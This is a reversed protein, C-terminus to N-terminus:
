GFLKNHKKLGAYYQVEKNFGTILAHTDPEEVEDVDLRVLEPARTEKSTDRVSEFYPHDLCEETSARRDPSICLMKRLLDLAPEDAGPYKKAFDEAAYKPTSNVYARMAPDTIFEQDEARPTGLTQFIVQLQDSNQASEKSNTPSLGICSRGPFLPARERRAKTKCKLMSLLEAFICGVAWVDAVPGYGGRLIIEPARYWRTSVHLTFKKNANGLNKIESPRGGFTSPLTECRGGLDMTLRSITTRGTGSARFTRALGFDCIRISCDSNILINGPKIDRHMVGASHIYNLGVLINYIILRVNEPKLILPSKILKDVSTEAREFALCISDFMQSHPRREPIFVDYLRVINPHKLVRLLCIERLIRKATQPDDFVDLESKIAVRTKTSVHEAEYVVAYAGRGIVRGTEYENNNSFDTVSCAPETVFVAHTPTLPSPEAAPAEAPVTELPPSTVPPPFHPKPKNSAPMCAGM